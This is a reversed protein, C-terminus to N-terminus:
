QKAKKKQQYYYLTFAIILPLSIGIGQVLVAGFAGYAKLIFYVTPAIVISAGLFGVSLIKLEDNLMLFQKVPILMLYIVFLCYSFLILLRVNEVAFEDKAIITIILEFNLQVFIVIFVSIPLMILYYRRIFGSYKNKYKTSEAIFVQLIPQMANGFLNLLRRAINYEVFIADSVLNALFVQPLADFTLKGISQLWSSYIAHINNVLFNAEKILSKKVFQYNSIVVLSFLFLLFSVEFLLINILILESAPILFFIGAKLFLVLRFFLITRYSYFLRCVGIFGEMADNMLYVVFSLFVFIVVDYDVTFIIISLVLFVATIAGYVAVFLGKITKFDSKFNSKLIYSIDTFRFNCIYFIIVAIAKYYFYQALFETDTRYVLVKFYALTAIIYIGFVVFNKSFVKLRM